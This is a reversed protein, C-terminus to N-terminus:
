TLNGTSYFNQSSVPELHKRKIAHLTKRQILRLFIAKHPVITEINISQTTLFLNLRHIFYIFNWLMNSDSNQKQYDNLQLSRLGITVFFGLVIVVIGSGQIICSMAHFKSSNMLQISLARFSIWKNRHHDQLLLYM